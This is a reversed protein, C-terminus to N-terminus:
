LILCFGRTFLRLGDPDPICKKQEEKKGKLYGMYVNKLKFANLYNHHKTYNQGKNLGVGKKLENVWPVHM